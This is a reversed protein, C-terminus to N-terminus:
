QTVFSTFYLAEVGARGTAEKMVAQVEKLAEEKLKEKAERTRLQDATQQSFLSVLRDRVVPDHKKLLEAVKPDRTMLQVEAQLYRDGSEDALNVTFAPELAIYEAPLLSTAAPAPEEHAAEAPIEESPKPKEAGRSMFFAVGGGALVAGVVGIAIPMLLGKKGSAKAPAAAAAAKAPQAKPPAAV